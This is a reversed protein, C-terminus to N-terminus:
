WPALRLLRCRWKNQPDKEDPLVAGAYREMLANLTAAGNNSDAVYAALTVDFMHADLIEGRSVLVDQATDAPFVM